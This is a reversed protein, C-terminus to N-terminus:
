VAGWETGCIAIDVSVYQAVITMTTSGNITEGAFGHIIVDGGTSNIRRITYFKNAGLAPLYVNVDGASADVNLTRTDTTITVDSTVTSSITNLGGIYNILDTQLTIDGLINGWSVTGSPNNVCDTLDDMWVWMEKTPIADQVISAGWQPTLVQQSM